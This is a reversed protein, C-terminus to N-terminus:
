VSSVCELFYQSLHQTVFKEIFLENDLMAIHAARGIVSNTSTAFSHDVSVRVLNVSSSRLPELINQMMELSLTSQLSGDPSSCAIKASHYPVYKDAPSTLLIVHKFYEFSPAESLQYLFSDRPNSADKLSLQLLSKSSYWKRVAWMGMSVLGNQSITGLHPGCISLMLYLKAQLEAFQPRTVLSRVVINGLSHGIFSIKSPTTPMDHVYELIEEMLRDTMLNFDCFTGGQNSQAMLFDFRVQPLVLQLFIRYLRLDFQNGQLGHVCVVLHVGPARVRQQRPLFSDLFYPKLQKQFGDTVQAHKTRTFVAWPSPEVFVVTSNCQTEVNEKCYFPMPIQLQKRIKAAIGAQCIPNTINSISKFYQSEQTVVSEQMYSIKLKSHLSSLYSIMRPHVVATQCFWEWAAGLYANLELIEKRCIEEAELLGTATAIGSIDPSSRAENREGSMISHGIHLSDRASRLVDCLMQHADQARQIKFSPVQYLAKRNSGSAIAAPPVYVGFLVSALSPLEPQPAPPSSALLWRKNAPQQQRVLPFEDLCFEVLSAHVTVGVAAMHFYDFMVPAHDHVGKRWDISFPISRSAVKKFDSVSGPPEDSGSFMLDLHLTLRSPVYVETYDRIIPTDLSFVFCEGLMFSQDTYEVQVTQTIFRDSFVCAGPFSFDSLNPGMLDKIGVCVVRSTAYGHIQSPDTDLLTCSVHYFGKKFLDLNVLPCLSVLIRRSLYPM